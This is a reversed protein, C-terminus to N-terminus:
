ASGLHVKITFTAGQRLFTVEVEEGAERLRVALMLDEPSNIGIGGLETIVDGPQLGSNAASTEAIVEEVRVGPRHPMELAGPTPGRFRIGLFAMPFRTHRQQLTSHHQEPQAHDTAPGAPRSGPDLPRLGVVTRAGRLAEFGLQLSSEVATDTIDLSLDLAAGVVRCGPLLLCAAMGPALVLWLRCRRRETRHHPGPM